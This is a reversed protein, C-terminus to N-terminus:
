AKLFTKACVVPSLFVVGPSTNRTTDIHGRCFASFGSLQKAIPPPHLFHSPNLELTFFFFFFLPFLMVPCASTVVQENSVPHQYRKIYILQIKMGFQSKIQNEATSTPSPPLAPSTQFATQGEAGSDDDKHSDSQGDSHGSQDVSSLLRVRRFTRAAKQRPGKNSNYRFM